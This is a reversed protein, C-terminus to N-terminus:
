IKRKELTLWARGKEFHHAVEYRAWCENCYDKGEFMYGCMDCLYSQCDDCAREAKDHISYKCTLRSMKQKGTFEQIIASHGKPKYCYIGRCM